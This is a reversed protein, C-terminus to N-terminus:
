MGRQENLQKATQFRARASDIQGAERPLEKMLYAASLVTFSGFVVWGLGKISHSAVAPRMLAALM